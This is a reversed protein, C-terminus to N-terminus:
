VPSSWFHGKLLFDVIKIWDHRFKALILYVRTGQKECLKMIILFFFQPNKLLLVNETSDPKAEKLTYM